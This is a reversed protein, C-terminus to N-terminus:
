GLHGAAAERVSAPHPGSAVERLLGRLDTGGASTIGANLMWGVMSVPLRTPHRRVSAVVAEDSGPQAEIGHLITWFVGYGDFEPFREFLRFWVDLHAPADALSFYEGALAQLRDLDLDDPDAPALADIDAVVQRIDRPM